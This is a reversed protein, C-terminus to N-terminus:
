LIDSRCLPCSSSHSTNFWKFLCGAHFRNKCTKCPKKPLSGDMVSIISYCIACEVQGEFHLTVNKKFLELGDVIRGNQSWITQQIGFIWARWRNEDVGVRKVDKIEIKHLPWDSPIKLKIELQHEDVLYSVSVENIPMAVKIKLNDTELSSLTEPDKVTGLEKWIIVPSFHNSTYTTLATSVQRDKCEQLWSHILSPVTLLARFYVHAAFAQVSFTTGPQYYQVFYEEVSWGDLKFAKAIGQDLGLIALISPMFYSPIVELKRMQDLYSLRVKLSADTFLNFFLIWGLLHGFVQSEQELNIGDELIVLLEKPLDAKFSDDVDVGAEIVLYETRKKAAQQLLQFSMRQVEVSSDMLLHCMKPLTEKDILEEPLDQVISLVLERCISRPTSLSSPELHIAALDKVLTMVTARRGQWDARLTKNTAVLEQIAIILRLTRSLTVQGLGDDFSAAELNNEIVDFIFEWHAGPVTQLIPFLHIFVETMLSEVEENVEEDEDDLEASIWSQLGKVVNVARPQSLFEVDSDEKPTCAVLKRLLRLGDTNAKAPKVGLLSTAVETRYRDLTKPEPAYQSVCRIIEMSTLVKGEKECYRAFKLWLESEVRDTLDQFLVKLTKGLLRSHRVSNKFLSDQITDLLFISMYDFYHGEKDEMISELVKQRWDPGQRPQLPAILLYNSINQIKELLDRLVSELSPDLTSFVPNSINPLALAEEIYIGLMIFHKFMWIQQKGAKRDSMFLDLLATVVRAYASFGRSDYRQPNSISFKLVHKPVKPNPDYASPPPLLADLVGLSADQPNAPLADLLRDVDLPSLLQVFLEVRFFRKYETTRNLESLATIIMEPTPLVAQTAIEALLDKVSYFTVDHENYTEPIGMSPYPGSSYVDWLKKAAEFAATPFPLSCQSLVYGYVFVLPIREARIKAISWADLSTDGQVGFVTSLIEVLKQGEMGMRVLDDEADKPLEHLSLCAEVHSKFRNAADKVLNQYGKASLFAMPTAVIDKLLDWDAPLQAQLLSFVVMDAEDGTPRLYERNRAFAVMRPLTQRLSSPNSSVSNLLSQWLAALTSQDSSHCAVYAALLDSHDLLLAFANANILADLKQNVADEGLSLLLKTLLTLDVTKEESLSPVLTEMALGLVLEKLEAGKTKVNASSCHLLENLLLPVIAQANTTSLSASLLKTLTSWTQNFVENSIVELSVIFKSLMPAPTEADLRFPKLTGSATIAEWIRRVQDAVFTVIAEPKLQLSSDKLGRKSIFLICELLASLFATDTKTQEARLGTRAEAASEYPAWFADFFATIGGGSVIIQSPLNSLLILIAPYGVQPSSNCGKELFILFTAYPSPPPSDTEDEDSEDSPEDAEQSANWAQPFDSLLALTPRWLVGQVGYDSEQFASRLVFNGLRTTIREKEVRLVSHLLGWM